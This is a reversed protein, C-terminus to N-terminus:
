FLRRPVGNAERYARLWEDIHEGSPVRARLTDFRYGNISLDVVSATIGIPATIYAVAQGTRQYLRRRQYEQALGADLVPQNMRPGQLSRQRREYPPDEFIRGEKWAQYAEVAMRDFGYISNLVDWTASATLGIAFDMVLSGQRRGIDRIVFEAGRDNIRDPVVGDIYYHACAGLFMQAGSVVQKSGATGIGNYAAADLGDYRLSLIHQDM